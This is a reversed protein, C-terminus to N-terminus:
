AIRIGILKQIRQRKAHNTGSVPQGYHELFSDMQRTQMTMLADFSHPFNPAVIGEANTIVQLADTTNSVAPNVHRAEINALRIEM